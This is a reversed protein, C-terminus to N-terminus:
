GSAAVIEFEYYDRAIRRGAKNTADSRRAMEIADACCCGGDSWGDGDSVDREDIGGGGGDFVVGGDDDFAIVDAGNEDARHDLEGAVRAKDVAVAFEEDGAQPVHVNVGREAIPEGAAAFDDKREEDGVADGAHAVHAAIKGNQLVPALLDGGSFNGARAHDDAARHEVGNKGAAFEAERTRDRGRRGVAGAGGDILEFRSPASKM